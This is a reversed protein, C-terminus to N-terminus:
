FDEIDPYSCSFCRTTAHLEEDLHGPRDQLQYTSGLM